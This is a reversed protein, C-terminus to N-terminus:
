FVTLATVHTPEADDSAVGPLRLRLTHRGTPVGALRSRGIGAEPVIRATPEDADDVLLEVVDDAEVEVHSPTVEWDVYRFVAEGGAAGGSVTNPRPDDARTIFATGTVACARWGEIREGLAFPRGAGTSTMVVPAILGDSDFEIPEICARRGYQSGGHSRHYFVYWRGGVEEISGHNNWSAPDCDANDIITGRYTYPGLPHPATAYDLSTPRGTSISAFVAYYTDGRRRVSTGEHFCHEAETLLDHVESGPVFARMTHDLEAGRASFQGWFYYARGDDDVLVAPDIGACPLRVPDTFPGAPDDAVAVGESQDPGCFYLYYRGDHPAADPAYLFGHPPPVFAAADNSWTASAASDSELMARLFPTPHAPDFGGPYAPNRPDDEWPVDRGDFGLDHITWTRLDATSVVRYDMSCYTDTYQDWSGYLYLRGDPMVHAEVDPIHLDPPLIPNRANVHTRVM